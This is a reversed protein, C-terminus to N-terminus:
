NKRYCPEGRRAQSVHWHMNAVSEADSMGAERGAALYALALLARPGHTPCTEHHRMEACKAEATELLALIAGTKEDEPESM